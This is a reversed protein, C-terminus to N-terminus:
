TQIGVSPILREIADAHAETLEMGGSAKCTPNPLGYRLM